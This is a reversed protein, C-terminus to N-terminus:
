NLKLLKQIGYLATRAISRVREPNNAHDYIGQNKRDKLLYDVRSDDKVLRVAEVNGYEIAYMLATWGLNDQLNVDLKPSQLLRKVSENNGYQIAYMLATREYKDQKNIELKEKQMLKNVVEPNNEIVAYMLPTMGVMNEANIDANNNFLEQVKEIDGSKIADMLDTRGFDDSYSHHVIILLFLFFINKMKM